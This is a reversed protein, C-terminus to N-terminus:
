NRLVFISVIRFILVFTSNLRMTSYVGDGNNHPKCRLAVCTRRSNWRGFDRPFHVLARVVEGTCPCPFGLKRVGFVFTNPGFGGGWAGPVLCKAGGRWSNCCLDPSPERSGDDADADADACMRGFTQNTFTLGRKTLEPTAQISNENTNMKSEIRNRSKLRKAKLRKPM